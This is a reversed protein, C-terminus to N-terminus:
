QARGSKKDEGRGILYGGGAGVLGGIVAGRGKKKDILAGGVAGAAGGIVAGKAADSWGKKKATPQTTGGYSSSSGGSSSYSRSSAAGARRAAVLEAQHQAEKEAEVKATEAKKFSDLRLSDKVAKIALQKDAEQQKLAAEEKARNNCAFMVSSLAIVVFIKKM